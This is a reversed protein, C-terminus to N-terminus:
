AWRETASRFIEAQYEKPICWPVGLSYYWCKGELHCNKKANIHVRQTLAGFKM